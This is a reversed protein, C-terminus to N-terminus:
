IPHPTCSSNLSVRLTMELDRKSSFFFSPTQGLQGHGHACIDKAQGLTPHSDLATPQLLHDASSRPSCGQGARTRSHEGSGM